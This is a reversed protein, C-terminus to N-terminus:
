ATARPRTQLARIGDEDEATAPHAQACIAPAAKRPAVTIPASRSSMLSVVARLAPAACVMSVGVLPYARALKGLEGAAAPGIYDDFGDPQRLGEACRNFFTAKM